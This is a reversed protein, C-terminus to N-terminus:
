LINKIELLSKVEYNTQYDSKKMQPNFWISKINTQIAGKIDVEPDDGVIICDQPQTKLDNLVYNFFRKDPKNYGADESTYVKSFYKDLNCNRIKNYQVEKFGNTVIFLNYSKEKLYTLIEHTGHILNNKKPSIEIYDQSFKKAMDVDIPKFKGISLEFRKWSLFEKTIKKERYQAWLEDNFQRYTKYFEEFECFKNLNYKYFLETFTEINNKEFDWLTRDLDFLVNKYDMTEFNSEAFNLKL